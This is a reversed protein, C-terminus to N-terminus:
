DYYSVTLYLGAHCLAFTIREEIKDEPYLGSVRLIYNDMASFLLSITDMIATVPVMKGFCYALTILRCSCFFFINDWAVDTPFLLFCVSSLFVKKVDLITDM